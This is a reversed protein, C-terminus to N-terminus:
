VPTNPGNLGGVGGYHKKAELYEEEIMSVDELAANVELTLHIIEGTPEMFGHAYIMMATMGDSTPGRGRKKTSCLRICIQIGM